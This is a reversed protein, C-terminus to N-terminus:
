REFGPFRMTSLCELASRLDGDDLFAAMISTKCATQESHGGGPFVVESSRPLWRAVREAYSPPTVPDREGSLLLVPMGSQWPTRMVESAPSRPWEDCGTKYEQYYRDGILTGVARRAVDSSDVFLLDESCYVGLHLGVSTSDGVWRTRSWYIRAFASFDGSESAQRAMAPISAALSGYLMGRVAYAFEWRGFDGELVTGASDVVRIRAPTRELDAAMRDLLARTGAFRAHCAPESDCRASVFVLSSEMSEALDATLQADFPVVGDLIVKQVRDPYRRAYTQALRTGFSFGALSWREIGLAQRVIELDAASAWNTYLALDARTMLRDRCARIYDPPFLAGLFNHRGPADCSLRHGPSTGRQDFFVLDHRERLAARGAFSRLMGTGPVGPGGQLLLVPELRNAQDLAPLVLARVPIMRGRPALENEPVLVDLCWVPEHIPPAQCDRTRSAGREDGGRSSRAIAAGAGFVLAALVVLGTRATM